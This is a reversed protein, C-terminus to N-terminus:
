DLKNKLKSILKNLMMAISTIDESINEFESQNIYKLKEAIIIQTDLETLSGKAIFLFHLYEKTSGRGWGEAINSSISVAARQMQNALAFKEKEPFQESIKYVEVTLSISKQWVILEKFSKM